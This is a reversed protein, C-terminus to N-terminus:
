GTDRWSTRRQLDLLIELHTKPKKAPFTIFGITANQLRFQENLIDTKFTGEWLIPALRPTM